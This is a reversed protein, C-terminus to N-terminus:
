TNLMGLIQEDAAEVIPVPQYVAACNILVDIRPYRLAIAAFANRVSEPSSVDCGVAMARSGLEGALKEVKSATRGLLVVTDGDAAFRRALARGLGVGAGTIIIVKSM